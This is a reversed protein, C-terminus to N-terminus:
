DVKIAFYLVPEFVNLAYGIADYGNALIAGAMVMRSLHSGSPLNRSSVASNYETRVFNASSCGGIAKLPHSKVHRNIWDQLSAKDVNPRANYNALAARVIKNLYEPEKGIEPNLFDSFIAM